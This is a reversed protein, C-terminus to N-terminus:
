LSSTCRCKCILVPFLVFENTWGRRRKVRGCVGCDAHRCPFPAGRHGSLLRAAAGATVRLRFTSQTNTPQQPPTPRDQLQTKLEFHLLWHTGCLCQSAVNLSSKFSCARPKGVPFLCVLVDSIKRRKISVVITGFFQVTKDM